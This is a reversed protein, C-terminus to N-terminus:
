FFEVNQLVDAGHTDPQPGINGNPKNQSTKDILHIM